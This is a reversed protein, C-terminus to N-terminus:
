KIEWLAFVLNGISKRTRQKGMQEDTRSQSYSYSYILIFIRPQEWVGVDDCFQTLGSTNPEHLETGVTRM